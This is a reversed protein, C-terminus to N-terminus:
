GARPTKGAGARLMATLYPVPKTGSPTTVSLVLHAHPEASANEFVTGAPLPPSPPKSRYTFVKVRKGNVKVTTTKVSGAEASFRPTYLSKKSLKPLAPTAKVADIGAVFPGAPCDWLGGFTEDVADSPSNAATVVAGDPPIQCSPDTHGVTSRPDIVVTKGSITAPIYDAPQNSLVPKTVGTHSVAQAAHLPPDPRPIGAGFAPASPLLAVTTALGLGAVAGVRSRWLSRLRRPTRVAKTTSSRVRHM